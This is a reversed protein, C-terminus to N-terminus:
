DLEFDGEPYLGEGIMRLYGGIRADGTLRWVRLLMYYVRELVNRVLLDKGTPIVEIPRVQNLHCEAQQEANSKGNSM